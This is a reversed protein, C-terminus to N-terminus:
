PGSGLANHHNLIGRWVKNKHSANKKPLRQHFALSKRAVGHARISGNTCPLRLPLRTRAAIPSKHVPQQLHRPRAGSPTVQRFPQIGKLRGLSPIIAPDLRLHQFPQELRHGGFRVPLPDHQVGGHDPGVGLGGTRKTFSAVRRGPAQGNERSRFWYGRRRLRGPGAPGCVAPGPGASPCRARGWGSRRRRRLSHRPRAQM